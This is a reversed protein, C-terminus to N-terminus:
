AESLTEPISVQTASVFGGGGRVSGSGGATASLTPLYGLKRLILYANMDPFELEYAHDRSSSFTEFTVSGGRGSDTRVPRLSEGDQGNAYAGAILTIAKIFRENTADITVSDVRVTDFFDSAQVLLATQRVVDTPWEESYSTVAIAANAEALTVYSNYSEAAIQLTAITM